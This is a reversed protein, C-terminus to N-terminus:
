SPLPFTYNHQPIDTYNMWYKTLLWKEKLMCHSFHISCCVLECRTLCWQTMVFLKAADSQRIINCTILCNSAAFAHPRVWIIMHQSPTLNSCHKYGPWTLFFHLLLTVRFFFFWLWFQCKFKMKKQFHVWIPKLIWIDPKIILAGINFIYQKKETKYGSFHFQAMKKLNGM